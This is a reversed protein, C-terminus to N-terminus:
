ARAAALGLATLTQDDDAVPRVEVCGHWAGPIRAAIGTAEQMDKAEILFYGGLQEKSDVYPGNLVQTKGDAVRVTTAADNNRLRNSSLLAGAKRLAEGYAMYAAMGQQQQEPTLQSWGKADSYILLMYQM